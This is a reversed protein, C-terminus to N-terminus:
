SQLFNSTNDPVIEAVTGVLLNAPFLPLSIQSTAVTDGVVVNASRPLRWAHFYLLPSIGDWYLTGNEGARRQAPGGGQFNPHLVSMVIPSIRASM